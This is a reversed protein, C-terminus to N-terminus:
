AFRQKKLTPEVKAIIKLIRKNSVREGLMEICFRTIAAAM